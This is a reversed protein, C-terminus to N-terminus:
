FKLTAAIHKAEALNVQLYTCILEDDRRIAQLVKQKGHDSASFIALDYLVLHTNVTESEPLIPIGDIVYSMRCSPAFSGELDKCLGELFSSDLVAPESDKFTALKMDLISINSEKKRGM